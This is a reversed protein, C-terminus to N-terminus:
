EEAPGDARNQKVRKKKERKKLKEPAFEYVVHASAIDRWTITIDDDNRSMAIGDDNVSILVGAHQRTDAIATRTKIQVRSGTAAEFHSRKALPRDVGPSSVELDYNGKFLGRHEDEVDLVDGLTRNLRELTAIAIADDGTQDGYLRLTVSDKGRVVQLFVHECSEDEVVPEIISCLTEETPNFAVVFPESPTTTTLTQTDTSTMSLRVKRYM